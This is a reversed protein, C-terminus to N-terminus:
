DEKRGTGALVKVILPVVFAGVVAGGIPFAANALLGTAAVASGLAAGAAAGTAGGTAREFVRERRDEVTETPSPVPPTDIPTKANM